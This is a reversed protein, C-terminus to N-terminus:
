REGRLEPWVARIFMESYGAIALLALMFGIIGMAELQNMSSISKVWAEFPTLAGGSSTFLAGAFPINEFIKFGSFIDIEPM